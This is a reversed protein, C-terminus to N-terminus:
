PAIESGLHFNNLWNTVEPIVEQREAVILELGNESLTDEIISVSSITSEEKSM